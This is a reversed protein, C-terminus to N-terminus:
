SVAEQRMGRVAPPLHWEERIAVTAVWENLVAIRDPDDALAERMFGPVAGYIGARYRLETHDASFWTRRERQEIEFAYQLCFRRVPCSWCTEMAELTTSPLGRGELRAPTTVLDDTFWDDPDLGDSACAADPWDVALQLYSPLAQPSSAEDYNVLAGGGGM